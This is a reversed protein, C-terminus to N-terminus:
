YWIKQYWWFFTFERNRYRHIPVLVPFKENKQHYRFFKTGFFTDTDNLMKPVAVCQERCYNSSWSVLIRILGLYGTPGPITHIESCKLLVIVVKALAGWSIPCIYTDSIQTTHAAACDIIPRYTTIDVLGCRSVLQTNHFIMKLNLLVYFVSAAPDPERNLRILRRSSLALM